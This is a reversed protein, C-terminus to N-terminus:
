ARRLDLMARRAFYVVPPRCPTTARLIRPRSAADATFYACRQAASSGHAAAPQLLRMLDFSLAFRFCLRLIDVDRYRPLILSVAPSDCKQRACLVACIACVDSPQPQMSKEDGGEPQLADDACTATAHFPSVRCM